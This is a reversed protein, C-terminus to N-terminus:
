ESLFSILNFSPCIFGTTSATIHSIRLNHLKETKNNSTQPHNRDEQATWLETSEGHGSEGEPVLMM